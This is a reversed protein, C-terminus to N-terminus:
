IFEGTKPNYHSNTSPVFGGQGDPVITGTAIGTKLKMAEHKVFFKIFPMAAVVPPYAAGVIDLSGLIFTTVEDITAGHNPAAAYRDAESM